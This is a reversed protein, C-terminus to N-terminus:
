KAREFGFIDERADKQGTLRNRIMQAAIMSFTIGNGGYGLAFFMREKGPWTGIYPLGDKTSSFTGCWAMDTVFPIEPFLKHFQKELSAIKRRLLKDRRVPDKFDEDGGGIIIRNDQTSRIYFYPERTEWILCREKWFQNPQIPQSVLAYTSQLDMVDKPLFKGAEFGAAIVVYKCSITKGNSAKFLYSRPREEWSVIETHSFLQLNNAEMHHKLLGIAAAYCDMQASRNNYLAGPASINFQNKLHKKDFYSVPLKYETRIEYEREILKLGQKNSALYLSPVREFYANVGTTKFLTELDSISQLSALYAPVARDTGLQDAMQCLPVDIEYQLQSTSAASSGTAISRKDVVTCAIGASCLEHAVLAGTIGSGIILVDTKISINLPNFYNYLPNKIIWYPLGSHLDM